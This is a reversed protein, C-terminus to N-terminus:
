LKTGGGIVDFEDDEWGDDGDEAEGVESEKEAALVFGTVVGLSEKSSPVFHGGPHTYMTRTDKDCAEWLAMSREESVITDVSGLVHLTKTKIPYNHEHEALTSRFGSYLVAFKLPPHEPLLTPLETCLMGAMAAGQSFGVVGEFPGEKEIYEKLFGWSKDIGVFAGTISDKTWWGYSDEDIGQSQVSAREEPDAPDPVSLRIPATPFFAEFKDAKQLSKRLASTKKYFLEGSQTYGHLYLIKGPM